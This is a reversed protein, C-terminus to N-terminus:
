TKSMATPTLLWPATDAPLQYLLGLGPWHLYGWGVWVASTIMVLGLYENTLIILM